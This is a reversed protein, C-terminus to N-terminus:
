KCDVHRVPGTTNQFVFSEVVEGAFALLNEHVEGYKTDKIKGDSGVVGKREGGGNKPKYRINAGPKIVLRDFRQQFADRERAQPTHDLNGAFKAVKAPASVSAGAGVQGGAQAGGQQQLPPPPQKDPSSKLPPGQGPQEGGEQSRAGQAAPRDRGSSAGKSSSAGGGARVQQRYPQRYPKGDTEILLCV